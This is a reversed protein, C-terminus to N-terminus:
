KELNLTKIKNVWITKKRKNSMRSIKVPDLEAKVLDMELKLKLDKFIKSKEMYTDQSRKKMKKRSSKVGFGIELLKPPKSRSRSKRPRLKM